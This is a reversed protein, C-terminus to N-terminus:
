CSCVSEPVRQVATFLHCFPLLYDQQGKVEIHKTYNM